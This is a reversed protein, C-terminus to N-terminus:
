AAFPPHPSFLRHSRWFSAGECGMNPPASSVIPTARLHVQYGWRAVCPLRPAVADLDHAAAHPSFQWADVRFVCCVVRLRAIM